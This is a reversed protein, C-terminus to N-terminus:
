RRGLPQSGLSLQMRKLSFVEIDREDEWKDQEQWVVQGSSPAAECVYESDYDAWSYCFVM